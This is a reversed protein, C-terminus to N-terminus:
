CGACKREALSRERITNKTLLSVSNNTEWAVCPCLGQGVHHEPPSGAGDCGGDDQKVALVKHVGRFQNVLLLQVSQTHTLTHTHTLLIQAWCTWMARLTWRRRIQQRRVARWVKEKLVKRQWKDVVHKGGATPSVSEKVWVVDRVNRM